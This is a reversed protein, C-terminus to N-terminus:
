LLPEGATSTSCACAPPETVVMKSQTGDADVTFTACVVAQLTDQGNEEKTYRLIVAYAGASPPDFPIGTERVESLSCGEECARVCGATCPECSGVGCGCGGCDGGPIFTASVKTAQTQDLCAALEEHPSVELTGAERCATLAIALLVVRTM